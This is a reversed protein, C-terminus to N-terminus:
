SDWHHWFHHTTFPPVEVLGHADPSPLVAPQAEEPRAVPVPAQSGLAVELAVELRELLVPAQAMLAVEM